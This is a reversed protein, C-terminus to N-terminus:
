KLIDVSKWRHLVGSYAEGKKYVFPKIGAHFIIRHILSQVPHYKNVKIEKYLKKSLNHIRRKLKKDDIPNGNFPLTYILKGSLKAGSYQLLKNLIKSTDSNGYNEGTTVSIAYKGHLLQEIVFHGRDIFTKLQGSINSAYTPSGIIIGHSMAIEDSLSEADDEIYCKGSKYCSCCGTCSNIKLDSINIYKVNVDNILSLEEGMAQLIKSTAGNKRPSGNLIIIKM